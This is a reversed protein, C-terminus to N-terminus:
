DGADIRARINKWYSDLSEQDVFIFLHYAENSDVYTFSTYVSNKTNCKFHRTGNRGCLTIGNVTGRDIHHVDEQKAFFMQTKADYLTYPSFLIPIQSIYQDRPILDPKSVIEWDSKLTRVTIPTTQPDYATM